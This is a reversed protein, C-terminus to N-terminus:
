KDGKQKDDLLDEMQKTIQFEYEDWHLLITRVLHVPLENKITLKNDESIYAVVKMFIEDALSAKLKVEYRKLVGDYEIQVM